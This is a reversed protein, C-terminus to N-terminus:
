PAKVESISIRETLSGHAEITVPKAAPLYPGVAAPNAYEFGTDDVAFLLYRGAPIDRFDFSGDSETQYGRYIARVAGSEM